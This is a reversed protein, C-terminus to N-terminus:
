IVLVSLSPSRFSVFWIGTMGLEDHLEVTGCYMWEIRDMMHSVRVHVTAEDRRTIGHIGLCLFPRPLVHQQLM